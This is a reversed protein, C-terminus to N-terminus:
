NKATEIEANMSLEYGCLNQACVTLDTKEAPLLMEGLLDAPTKVGYSDQLEKNYLDPYVVCAATLRATYEVGDMQMTYRDKKGPVAVTKTCDAKIEDDEKATVARLEWEIPNGKEDTFRNSVVKKINEPRKGQEKFFAQLSM